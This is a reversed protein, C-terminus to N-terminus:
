TKTVLGGELTARPLAKEACPKDTTCSVGPINPCPVATRTSLTFDVRRCLRRDRPVEAAQAQETGKAEEETYVSSDQSAQSPQQVSQLQSTASRTKAECGVKLGTRVIAKLLSNIGHEVGKMFASEVSTKVQHKSGLSEKLRPESRISSAVHKALRTLDGAPFGERRATRGTVDSAGSPGQPAFLRRVDGQKQRGVDLGKGINTLRQAEHYLTRREAIMRADCSEELTAQLTKVESQAAALRQTATRLQARLGKEGPLDWSSAAAFHLVVAVAVTGWWVGPVRMVSFLPFGRVLDHSDTVLSLAM